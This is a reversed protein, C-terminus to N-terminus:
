CLAIRPHDKYTARQTLDDALSHGSGHQFHSPPREPQLPYAAVASEDFKPGAHKAQLAALAALLFPLQKYGQAQPLGKAAECMAAGTWRSAM